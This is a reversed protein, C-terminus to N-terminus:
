GGVEKTFDAAFVKVQEFYGDIVTVLEAMGDTKNAKAL